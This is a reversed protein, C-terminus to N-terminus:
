PGVWMMKPELYLDFKGSIALQLYIFNGMNTEQIPHTEWVIKGIGSTVCEAYIYAGGQFKCVEM